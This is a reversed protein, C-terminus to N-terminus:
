TLWKLLFLIISILIIATFLLTALSIGTLTWIDMRLQKLQEKNMKEGLYGAMNFLLQCNFVYIINRCFFSEYLYWMGRLNPNWSIFWSCTCYANSRNQINISENWVRVKIKRLKVYFKELWDDDKQELLLFIEHLYASATTTVERDESDLEYEDQETERTHTKM